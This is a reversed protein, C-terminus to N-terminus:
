DFAVGTVTKIMIKIDFLVSFKRIYELNLEMKKPLLINIYDEDANCSTLFENEDKYTISALSTIGAPMLLTAYMEPTYKKVYKPVEPRTGVFSMQGILVNFLQPLEDLRYKRLFGGCKTVRSDNSVTVQSANKDQNVVMTRFKLIKFERGGTTIRTQRFIVPGESTAKVVAAIVAMPLLLILILIVSLVIDIIRKVALGVRKKRLLNYYEEVQPTKMYAPMKEFNIM